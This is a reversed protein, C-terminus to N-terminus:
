WLTVDGYKSQAKSSGPARRRSQHVPFQVVNLAGPRLLGRNGERRRASERKRPRGYADKQNTHFAAGYLPPFPPNSLPTLDVPSDRLVRTAVSANIDDVLCTTVTKCPFGRVSKPAARPKSYRHANLQNQVFDPTQACRDPVPQSTLLAVNGRLMVCRKQHVTDRISCWRLSLWLPPIYHDRYQLPGNPGIRGM